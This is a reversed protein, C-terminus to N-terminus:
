SRQGAGTIGRRRAHEVIVEVVQEITLATTDVVVADDAKKLPAAARTSDRHDREEISRGVAKIDAGELEAHRRAARVDADATLFIKLGADPLVVTGIDRGEMVVPGKAAISRMVTSLAERIAPRASYVSALGGAEETRIRGTYDRGNISVSGTETDFAATLTSAFAGVAAADDPDVGADDAAVAAARYLAGTDVYGFGLVDAIRRSVTTKGVGGPGDIAIAAARTDAGTM